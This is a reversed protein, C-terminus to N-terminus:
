QSYVDGPVSYAVNFGSNHKRYKLIIRGQDDVVFATNFFRGPWDPDYELVAACYDAGLRAAQECIRDIEPGPIRIACHEIWEQVSRECVLGRLFVEPYGCIKAHEREVAVVSIELARTLNEDIVDRAEAANSIYRVNTQICSLNYK